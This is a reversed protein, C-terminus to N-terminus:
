NMQIDTLRSYIQIMSLASQGNSAPASTNGQRSPKREEIIHFSIYTYVSTRTHVQLMLDLGFHTCMTEKDM